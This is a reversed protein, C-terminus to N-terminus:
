FDPATNADVAAFVLGQWVKAALQPLRVDAVDFGEVSKMEPATRLQGELTYMWGHYRCRLAKAGLGDCQALPGARHRCANHFVRVAGDTGHVALVPLGALAAIVHDGADRLPSVHVTLQWRRAFIARRDPKPTAADIYFAAALSTAYDRPQPARDANMGAINCGPRQAHRGRAAGESVP